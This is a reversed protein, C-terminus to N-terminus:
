RSAPLPLIIRRGEWDSKWEKQDNLLFAADQGMPKYVGFALAVANGPRAEYFLRYYRIPREPFPGPGSVLDTQANSVIKGDADILHAFVYWDNGLPTGGAAEIWFLGQVGGNEVTVDAGRVQLAPASDNEPHLAITKAITPTPTRAALEDSSWWRRPNADHYAQPMDHDAELQALAYEFKSRDVIRILRVRTDSIVSIGNAESLSSIWANFLRVLSVFDPVQRQALIADRTAADRIYEAGIYNSFEETRITTARQWDLPVIVSVQPAPLNTVRSNDWVSQLNRLVSTTDTLYVTAQKVGEARLQELFAAAQDNEAQYDNVHLSIGAHWQWRYPPPIPSLLFATIVATPLIIAGAFTYVIEPELGELWKMLPPLLFIFAMVVFPLFYRIQNVETEILWFWIGVLFCFLATAANAYGARNRLATVLGAALLLPIAYGFSTRILDEFVNLTIPASFESNIIALVRHGFAINEASFYGSRFSLDTAAAFLTVAIILSFSVFRLLRRDRWIEGIRWQLSAGLLALWALGTLAMLGLGSPKVWLSFGGTFAAVASWAISRTTVSRVVAAAAVGCVGALFGDVLGWSVAAPLFDNRQFQFFIPMGALAVALSALLWHGPRTLYRSWGAIYIAIALLMIPIFCSRFYFWRFNDSWGFPYSMLITGPPRDTLPLLFPDFWEGIDIAQWFSYAKLTYSLADWVPPEVAGRVAWALGIAIACCWLGVAFIPAAKELRM